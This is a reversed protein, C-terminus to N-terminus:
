DLVIINKVKNIYYDTDIPVEVEKSVQLEILKRKDEKNHTNFYYNLGKALYIKVGDNEFFIGTVVENEFLTSNNNQRILYFHEAVKSCCVRSKRIVLGAKCIPCEKQWHMFQKITTERFQVKM